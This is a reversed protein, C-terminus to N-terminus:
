TSNSNSSSSSSSPMCNYYNDEHWEFWMSCLRPRNDSSSRLAHANVLLHNSQALYQSCFRAACAKLLPSLVLSKPGAKHNVVADTQSYLVRRHDFM